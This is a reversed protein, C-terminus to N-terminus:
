RFDKHSTTVSKGVFIQSFFNGAYVLGTKFIGENSVRRGSANMSFNMKFLVKGFRHANRAISTDDGYFDISTDFGNMKEVVERKIAFNGGVLMYRIILYIPLSFVYWWVKVLFNKSPSLDYYTYPGSICALHENKAFEKVIMDIWGEPMHNDADIFALIDGKAELRGRERAWMVGKRDERIVTVGSYSKAVESTKDASANDVVIIELLRGNSNKIAYEICAGIYKEENHSPIILSITPEKM